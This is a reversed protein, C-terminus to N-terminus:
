QTLGSYRHNSLDFVLLRGTTPVVLIMQTNNVSVIKLSHEQTPAVWVGVFTLHSGVNPDVPEAYLRVAAAPLGNDRSTGAYALSWRPGVRGQWFNNVLFDLASFPGQHMETVGTVRPQQVERAPPGALPAKAGARLKTAYLEAQERELISVKDAPLGRVAVATRDDSGTAAGSALRVSGLTLVALGALTAYRFWGSCRPRSQM